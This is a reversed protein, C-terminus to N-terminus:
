PNGNQEFPNDILPASQPSTQQISPQQGQQPYMNQPPRSSGYRSDKRRTAVVILLILVATLIIVAGAIVFVILFSLSM